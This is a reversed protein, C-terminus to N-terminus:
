LENEFLNDIVNFRLNYLTLSQRGLAIQKEIYMIKKIYSLFPLFLINQKQERNVHIWWKAHLLLFNIRFTCTQIIGFIIDITKLDIIKGEINNIWGKFDLWFQQVKICDVFFHPINNIQDCKTCTENVTEDFKAVYSDTAYVRHIIKFQFEVLKTDQTLYKALTYINKWTKDNFAVFHKEFWSQKCTPTTINQNYLLWYIHKSKTFLVPKLNNEGLTIHVMELDPILQLHTNITLTNRWEHPITDRLCMYDYESICNGFKMTFAAYNLLKNADDLIDNLFVVGNEYM